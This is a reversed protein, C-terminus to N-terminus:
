LVEETSGKWGCACFVEQGLNVYSRFEEESIELVVYLHRTYGDLQWTSTYVYRGTLKSAPETFAKRAAETYSRCSGWCVVPDSKLLDKDTASRFYKTVFGPRELVPAGPKIETLEVLTENYQIGRVWEPNSM